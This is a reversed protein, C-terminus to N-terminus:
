KARACGDRRLAMVVMFIFSRESLSFVLGRPCPTVQAVVCPRVMFIMRAKAIPSGIAAWMNVVASCVTSAGSM